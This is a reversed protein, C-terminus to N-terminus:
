KTEPKHDGVNALRRLIEQIDPRKIIRAYFAQPTEFPVEEKENGMPEVKPEETTTPETWGRRWLRKTLPEM